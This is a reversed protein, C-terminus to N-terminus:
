PALWCIYRPHYRVPLSNIRTRFKLFTLMKLAPRDQMEDATTIQM